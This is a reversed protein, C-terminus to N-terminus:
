EVITARDLNEMIYQKREPTNKGMYFELTSLVEKSRNINVQVLRINEGLFQKFENPSIEGLGKFRTIEPKGGIEIIASQKEEENYCYITKKKNRVRFLPTELVYILGNIVLKEYYQLFFTVLLNRIHLGDPDSDTAIVIKAYRLNDFNDEINLAKTINYFEENKYIADRKLGYVNLPKGRLAFIAQTESDRCNIMSGAASDGETLFIMSEEGRWSSRKRPPVVDNLHHKCDRLKPIRISSKKSLEKIEKQVSKLEKRIKENLLIKEEILSAVDQNKYLYDVLFNKVENVIWGKVDNNGLKNKTQSEFIPELIKIAIAGVIGDRVDKGDYQKKFYENIAKLIAERFASLHTGGDCTYQGNVFSYHNEGYVPVHTFVFELKNSSYYIPQYLPSDVEESILDELGGKSMIIEDNFCIKLGKNLYAYYWLRKKIYDINFQYHKFIKEDPLFEIFTGNKEKTEGDKESILVGESYIAEKIFGDRHSVVRFHVSLANVAKLGVGNLGASFQFVDNNFKGGTNINSVCKIVSNLPIGRGYDRVSVKNDTLTIEIKKGNGEIFEDVSNDVVEKLLIYIGDDYNSGDGQRGIYMGTRKRIHDLSSLTQIANDDYEVERREFDEM